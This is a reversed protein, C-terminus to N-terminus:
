NIVKPCGKYPCAHEHEHKYKHKCSTEHIQFHKRVSQCDKFTRGCFKRGCLYFTEIIHEQKQDNDNSESERMNEKMAESEDVSNLYFKKLLYIVYM